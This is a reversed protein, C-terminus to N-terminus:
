PAKFFASKVMLVLVSLALAFLAIAGYLLGEGMSLGFIFNPTYGCMTWVEFMQPFWTDLSFWSPFGPDMGCQGEYLGREVLVTTRSRVILFGIATLLGVQAVLRAATWKRAFLGVVAFLVGLLVWFRAQICLVCPPEGLGYQYFLAVAELSLGTVIVALWYWFSHVFLNLQKLMPDGTLKILADAHCELRKLYKIPM